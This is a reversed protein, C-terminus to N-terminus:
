DRGAQAVAQALRQSDTFCLAHSGGCEVLTFLGLCKSLRPHWPLSHPMASEMLEGTHWAGHVLVCVDNM